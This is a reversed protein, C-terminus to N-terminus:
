RGMAAVAIGPPSSLRLSGGARAAQPRRSAGANQDSGTGPLRVEEIVPRAYNAFDEHRAIKGGSVTLAIVQEARWRYGKTAGPAASVTNVKGAFVVVGNSEFVIPFDFGLEIVGGKAGFERMMALVAARGEYVPVARPDNNTRDVFAINDAMFPEMASWDARSYAEVYARGLKEAASPEAAAAAFPAIIMAIGGVIARLV